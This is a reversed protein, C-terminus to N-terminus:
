RQITQRFYIFKDKPINCRKKISEASTIEFEQYLFDIGCNQM